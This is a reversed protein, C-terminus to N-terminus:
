APCSMISNKMLFLYGLLALWTKTMGFRSAPVGPGSISESQEAYLIWSKIIQNEHKIEDIV